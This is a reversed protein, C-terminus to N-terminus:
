SSPSSTPEAEPAPAPEPEEDPEVPEVGLKAHAASLVPRLAAEIADARVLGYLYQSVNAVAQAHGSDTLRTVETQFPQWTAESSGRLWALGAALLPAEEDSWDGNPLHPEAKPEIAGAAETGAAGEHAADAPAALVAMQEGGQLFRLYSHSAGPAMIGDVRQALAQMAQAAVLHPM